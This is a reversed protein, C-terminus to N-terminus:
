DYYQIFADVQGNKIRNKITKKIDRNITIEFFSKNTYNAEYKNYYFKFIEREPIKVLTKNNYAEEDEYWLKLTADWDISLNVILKDKKYGIFPKHKKLELRGMRNPLIVDNGKSLEEALYNNVRRIISYFEKETVPRDLDLWKNKRIWKYANYVGLSGTVKHKRNDHLKQQSARFEEYTM